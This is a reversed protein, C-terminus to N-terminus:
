MVFVGVQLRVVMLIVPSTYVSLIKEESIDNDM